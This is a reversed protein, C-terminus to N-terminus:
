RRRRDDEGVASNGCNSELERRVSAVTKDDVKIQAGISRNSAEPKAKLLKAILERKQEGTLHRRHINLSVALAYPDAGTSGEVLNVRGKCSSQELLWGWNNDDKRLRLLGVAEM